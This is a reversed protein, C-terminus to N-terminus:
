HVKFTKFSRTKTSIGEGGITAVTEDKHIDIGCGRKVVQDFSIGDM